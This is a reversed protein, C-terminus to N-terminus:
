RWDYLLTEAVYDYNKGNKAWRVTSSATAYDEGSNKTVSVIRRFVTDTVGLANRRYFGNGDIKIKADDHMISNNTESLGNSNIADVVYKKNGDTFLFDGSNLWESDRYQRLIELGEQALQSAILNNKNISLVQINQMMLSVVGLMGITIISTATVVELFSFGKNKKLKKFYQM